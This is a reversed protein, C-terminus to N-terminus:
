SDGQDPIHWSSRVPRVHALLFELSSVLAWTTRSHLLIVPFKCVGQMRDSTSARGPLGPASPTNLALSHQGSAIQVGLRWSVGNQDLLVWFGDTQGVV